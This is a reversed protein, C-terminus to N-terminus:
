GNREPLTADASHERPRADIPHHPHRRRGGAIPLRAKTGSTTGAVRAPIAVARLALRLRPLTPELGALALQEVHRKHVDDEHQWMREQRQGIPVTRTQVAPEKLRARRRESLDGGIEPMESGLDAHQGDEVRPPLRQDAMRVDMADHRGTPERGIMVVPDVRLVGTEEERHLDQTPDKASLKDLLQAAGVGAALEIEGAGRVVQPVRGLPM